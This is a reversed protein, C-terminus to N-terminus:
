NKMERDSRKKRAYQSRNWDKEEGKVEKKSVYQCYYSEFKRTWIVEKKALM